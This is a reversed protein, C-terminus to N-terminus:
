LSSSSRCRGIWSVGPAIPLDVHCLNLHSILSLSEVELHCPNPPFMTMSGEDLRGTVLVVVVVFVFALLRCRYDIMSPLIADRRM